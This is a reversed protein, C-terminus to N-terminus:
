NYKANRIEIEASEEFNTDVGDLTCIDIIPYDGRDFICVAHRPLNLMDLTDDGLLKMYQQKDDYAYHSIATMHKSNAKLGLMRPIFGLVSFVTSRNYTSQRDISANTNAGSPSYYYDPENAGLYKSDPHTPDNAINDIAQLATDRFNIPDASKHISKIQKVTGCLNQLYKDSAEDKTLMGVVNKFQVFFADASNKNSLKAYIASISQTAVINYCGRSRDKPINNEDDANFLDQFEDQVFLLEAQQPDLKWNNERNAIANRVKAKVLQTVLTGAVGFREPPMAVAIKKGKLCDLIDVSTTECDAWKIVDKQQLVAQMYTQATKLCKIVFEANDENMNSHISVILQKIRPDTEYNPHLELLQALKEGAGMEYVVKTKPHPKGDAGIEVGDAVTQETGRDLMFEMLNYRYMYSWKFDPVLNPNIAFIDRLYEHALASNYIIELATQKFEANNSDDKVNNIAKFITQWKTADVGDVLCFSEVFDPHIFLDLIKKCEFGLEGKGDMLVMGVPKGRKSCADFVRKIVARLFFSKGVGPKGFVIMHRALNKLNLGIVTGKDPSTMSGRRAFEGTATALPLFPTTADDKIAQVIQKEIVSYLAQNFGLTDSHRLSQELLAKARSKNNSYSMSFLSATPIILSAAALIPSVTLAGAGVASAAAVSLAIKKIGIDHGTSWDKVLTLGSIRKGSRSLITRTQTKRLDYPVLPNSFIMNPSTIEDVWEFSQRHMNEIDTMGIKPIFKGYFEKVKKAKEM